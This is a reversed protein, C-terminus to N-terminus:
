ILVALDAIVMKKFVKIAMNDCFIIGITYKEAIQQLVIIGVAIMLMDLKSTNTM